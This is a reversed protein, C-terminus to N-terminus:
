VGTVQTLTRDHEGGCHGVSPQQWNVAVSRLAALTGAASTM